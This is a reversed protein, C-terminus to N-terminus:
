QKSAIISIFTYPVRAFDEDVHSRVAVGSAPFLSEYAGQTRVYCGRDWDLLKKRFLSQSPTYCGDLTFIKGGPALSAAAVALLERAEQDTLHHLLGNMMIVDVPALM